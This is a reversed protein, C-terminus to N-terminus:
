RWRAPTAGHELLRAIAAAADEHAGVVVLDGADVRSALLDIAALEGEAFLLQALSAGLSAFEAALIRTTEGLQRGRLYSPMEKLILLDPRFRWVAAALEHLARNDRDGAQGVVAIRRGSLGELGQTLAIWGDPNHVFDVVLRAGRMELTALRGPNDSPTSGFRRLTERVDDLPVGLAFAAASAALANAINYRMTGGFSLPMDAADIVPHLAGAIAAVLTTGDLYWASGGSAVHEAITPSPPALSFWTIPARVTHALMRLISDDANLVACGDPTLARAVVLKVDGLTRLDDVGYDGLHDNAVNTVVAARALEVALGRRLIGGRATELVAASVTTDQLIRRAGAPGSYDGEAVASDAIWIGDTCSWGVRHGARRLMCAVLRTTTTKGNSGTVLAIPINHLAHWPVDAPSPLAGLVFTRSGAGAGLVLHDDDFTVPLNRSHAATVLRTLAPRRDHLIFVRLRACIDDYDPSIGAATREMALWAQENVETAALLADVAATTFLAARTSGPNYRVIISEDRWDIRELIERMAHQWGSIAHLLESAPLVVELVAGPRDSFRNAGTLRRSGVIAASPYPHPPAPAPIPARDPLPTMLSAAAREITPREHWAFEASTGFSGWTM